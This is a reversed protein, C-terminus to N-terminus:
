GHDSYTSARADRPRFDGIYPHLHSSTAPKFQLMARTKLPRSQPVKVPSLALNVAGIDVTPASNRKTSTLTSATSPPSDQSKTRNQVPYESYYNAYRDYDYKFMSQETTVTHLTSADQELSEFARDVLGQIHQAAKHRVREQHTRERPTPHLRVDEKAQELLETKEHIHAAALLVDQATVRQQQLRELVGRKTKRRQALEGSISEHDSLRDSTVQLQTILTSVERAWMEGIAKLQAVVTQEDINADREPTDKQASRPSDRHPSELRLMLQALSWEQESVVAQITRLFRTREAELQEKSASHALREDQLMAEIARLKGELENRVEDVSANSVLKLQYRKHAKVKQYAAKLSAQLEGVENELAAIYAQSKQTVDVPQSPMDEKGPLAAEVSFRVSPRKMLQRLQHQEEISPSTQPADIEETQVALNVFRDVCLGTTDLAVDVTECRRSEIPDTQCNVSETIPTLQPTEVTEYETSVDVTEVAVSQIAVDCREVRPPAMPKESSRPRDLTSQPSLVATDTVAAPPPPPTQTEADAAHIQNRWTVPETQVFTTLTSRVSLSPNQTPELSGVDEPKSPAMQEAWRIPSSARDRKRVRRSTQPTESRATRLETAAAAAEDVAEAVRATLQVTQGILHSRITELMEVRQDQPWLSTDTEPDIAGSPFTIAKRWGGCHDLIQKLMDGIYWRIEVRAALRLRNRNQSTSGEGVADRWCALMRMKTLEMDNSHRLAALSQVDFSDAIGERLTQLQGSMRLAAAYHENGDAILAQAPLHHLQWQLRAAQVIVDGPNDEEMVIFEQRIAEELARDYDNQLDDESLASESYTPEPSPADSREDVAEEDAAFAVQKILLDCHEDATSADMDPHDPPMTLHEVDNSVVEAEAQLSTDIELARQEDAAQYIQEDDGGDCGVHEEPTVAFADNDIQVAGGQINVVTPTKSDDDDEEKEVVSLVPHPHAVAEPESLEVKEMETPLEVSLEPGYTVSEHVSASGDVEEHAESTKNPVDAENVRQDSIPAVEVTVKDEDNEDAAAPEQPQIAKQLEERRTLRRVRESSITNLEQLASKDIADPRSQLEAVVREYDNITRLLAQNEAFINDLVTTSKQIDRELKACRQADRHAIEKIARVGLLSSLFDRVTGIDEQSIETWPHQLLEDLQERSAKRLGDLMETVVNNEEQQPQEQPQPQPQVIATLRASTQAESDTQEQRNAGTQVATDQKESSQPPHDSTQTGIYECIHAAVTRIWAAPVLPQSAYSSPQSAHSVNDDDDSDNSAVSSFRQNVDNSRASEPYTAAEADNEVPEIVDEMQVNHQALAENAAVLKKTLVNCTTRLEDYKSQLKRLKGSWDVGEDDTANKSAEAKDAVRQSTTLNEMKLSLQKNEAQLQAITQNAARQEKEKLSLINAVSAKEVRAVHAEEELGKLKAHLSSNQLRLSQIEQNSQHLEQELEEYREELEINQQMLMQVDAAQLIGEIEARLRALEKNSAAAEDSVQTYSDTLTALEQKTMTLTHTLADLEYNAHVDQQDFAKALDVFKAVREPDRLFQDKYRNKSDALAFLRKFKELEQTLKTNEETLRRKDSSWQLHLSRSKSEAADLLKKLQEVVSTDQVVSVESAARSLIPKAVEVQEAIAKEQKAASQEQQLELHVQKVRQIFNALEQKAKVASRKRFDDWDVENLIALEYSMGEAAFEPAEEEDDIVEGAGNESPNEHMEAERQVGSLRASDM